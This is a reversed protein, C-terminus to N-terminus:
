FYVPSPWELVWGCEPFFRGWCPPCIYKPIYRGSNAGLTRATRVYIPKVERVSLATNVAIPFLASVAGMGMKSEIGTGLFLLLVPFLIIKPVASFYYFLPDMVRYIYDSAGMVSGIVLGFISGFLFGVLIEYVTTQAHVGLEGSVLINMLQAMVETFSPFVEPILLGTRAILEWILLLIVVTVVQISLTNKMMM